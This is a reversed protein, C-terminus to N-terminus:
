RRPLARTRGLPPPSRTSFTNCGLQSTGQEAFNLIDSPLKQLLHASAASVERDCRRPALKRIAMVEIMRRRLPSMTEDTM